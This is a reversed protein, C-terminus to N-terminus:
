VTQSDLVECGGQSSTSGGDGRTFFMTSGNTPCSIVTSPATIRWGNRDSTTDAFLSNLRRETCCKNSPKPSSPPMDSRIVSHAPTEKWRYNGGTIGAGYPVPQRTWGMRSPGPTPYISSTRGDGGSSAKLHDPRQRLIGSATWNVRGRRQFKRSRRM